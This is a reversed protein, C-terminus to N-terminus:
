PQRAAAREVGLLLGLLNESFIAQREADALDLAQVTAVAAAADGIVHPYDSGLVIHGAGVTEYAARLSPLHFSVTDYYLEGLYASPPQPLATAGRSLRALRQGPAGM